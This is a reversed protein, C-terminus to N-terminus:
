FNSIEFETRRNIQHEAEACKIGDACRNRLRAEGYGNGKIRNSSFGGNRIIYAVTNESRRQSLLLNYDFEARSDTYSNALVNINPCQKMIKIVKDLEDAADARIYHENYDFYVNNLNDFMYQCKDFENANIYRNKSAGIYQLEVQLKTQNESNSNKAITNETKVFNTVKNSPIIELDRKRQEISKSTNTIIQNKTNVSNKVIPNNSPIIGLDRKRQEIYKSTKTVIQNETKVTNKVIPNNATIFKSDKKRQEIAKSTKTIIQNKTKVTNKVIPNNSTTIGLDRKRQELKFNNETIENKISNNIAIKKILKKSPNKKSNLRSQENFVVTKTNTVITKATYNKNKFYYIDYNGHGSERNSSFYGTNGISKKTFAIDDKESNITAGLNKAKANKNLEMAYIDQGGFGKRGNSSFYLTNGFVFPTTEENSTNIEPGLNEPEGYTNHGLITVKFIDLSGLTGNMDSAFYLTKNDESLSPHGVSYDKNCFPLKKINIWYGATIVDGKFLELHDNNSRTFYVTKNDNTFILDIEDFESNIDKSLKQENNISGNEDIFGFYFDLSIVQKSKKKIPTKIKTPSTYILFDNNFYASGFNTKADNINSNVIKYSNHQSFLSSFNLCILILTILKKM